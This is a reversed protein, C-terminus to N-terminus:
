TQVGDSAAERRRDYTAILRGLSARLHARAPADFDALLADDAAALAARARALVDAGHHTLTVEHARRDTPHRRREALRLRELDDVIAVMTTRDTQLQASLAAQSRADVGIMQMVAYHPGRLGLPALARAVEDQARLAVQRLLYSTWGALEDPMAM